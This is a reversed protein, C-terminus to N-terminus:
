ADRNDSGRGPKALMKRREGPLRDLVRRVQVASWEGGRATRINRANLAAAIQRLSSAGAAQVEAVIPAIDAVRSAALVQRKAVSIQAAKRALPPLHGKPGFREVAPRPPSCPL